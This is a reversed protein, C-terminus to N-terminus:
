GSASFREPGPRRDIKLRGTSRRSKKAQVGAVAICGTGPM